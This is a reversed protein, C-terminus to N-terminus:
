LRRFSRGTLDCVSGTNPSRGYIRYHGFSNAAFFGAGLAARLAAGNSAALEAYHQAAGYCAGESLRNTEYVLSSQSWPLGCRNATAQLPRLLEKLPFLNMGTPSNCQAPVNGATAAIM